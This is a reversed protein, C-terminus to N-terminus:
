LSLKIKSKKDFPIGNPEFGFPFCDSSSSDWEVQFSICIYNEWHLFYLLLARSASQPAIIQRPGVRQNYEGRPVNKKVM